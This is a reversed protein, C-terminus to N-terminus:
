NIAIIQKSMKTVFFIFYNRLADSYTGAFSKRQLLNMQRYSIKNWSIKTKLHVITQFILYSM